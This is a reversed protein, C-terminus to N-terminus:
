CQSQVFCFCFFGTELVVAEAMNPWLVLFGAMKNVMAILGLFSGVYVLHTFNSFLAGWEMWQNLLVKGISTGNQLYIGNESVSLCFM